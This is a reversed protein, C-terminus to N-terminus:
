VSGRGTGRGRNIEQNEQKKDTDRDFIDDLARRASYRQDM